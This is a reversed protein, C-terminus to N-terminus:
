LKFEAKFHNDHVEADILYISITKGSHDSILEEKIAATIDVFFPGVQIGGNKSEPKIHSVFREKITRNEGDAFSFSDSLILSSECITFTRTIRTDRSYARGFELSIRNDDHTFRTCCFETGSKQPEANIVPVNHGLSSNCLYNYRKEEDFYDATYEGCGIDCLVQGYKDALIFSGVDNHNHPEGNSGGKVFLSYRQTRKIYWQSDPYFIESEPEDSRKPEYIYSRIYHAWRSCEDNRVSLVDPAYVSDPFLTCLLGTLGTLPAADPSADSCSVAETGLYMNQQFQAIRSIKDTDFINRGTKELLLAAFYMFYGFGYSWYGLGELCVGDNNFGSLYADLTDFIRQPVPTNRYLYIMGICGGCVAAWNHRASEWVYTNNEFPSIVRRTVEYEIREIIHSPLTDSLLYAIETLTFATEANFLDICKFAESSPPAHAPLAWTFEGCIAWILDCLEPLYKEDHSIYMMFTSCLRRRRNFYKEEYGIRSGTKEFESFESYTLHPIVSEHYRTYYDEIERIDYSNLTLLRLKNKM